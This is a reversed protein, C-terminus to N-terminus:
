AQWSKRLLLRWQNATTRSISDRELEVLPFRALLFRGAEAETHNRLHERSGPKCALAEIREGPVRPRVLGFPGNDVVLLRGGWRLAAVIRSYATWLDALHNHARLVLVWDFSENAPQVQEIGATVLAITGKAALRRTEEDPNPDVVTYRVEGSAVQRELLERHLLRGGGVDLVDGKMRALCGLVQEEADRFLDEEIPEFLGSAPNRRLKRLQRPFDTVCPAEDLQLYVQELDDRIHRVEEATFDATDTACLIEEGGRSLTLTGPSGTRAGEMGPVYNYSNGVGGRVPRLWDSGFREITGTWTCRCGDGALCGLCPAPKTMNGYDVPHFREEGAERMAKIGHSFLDDQLAALRRDLCHPFGDVGFREPPLGLKAGLDLAAGVLATARVPHPILGPDTLASGKPEVNSFKIRVNGLPALTSIVRGLAGANAELVVCNATLLRDGGAEALLHLAALAQKASGPVRTIADHVKPPGHLSMYVYDLGLDLLKGTLPRYALMRANTVLGFPLGRGHCFEALDVLDKRITPEGGSFLVSDAGLDRAQDIRECAQATTLDPVGRLAASHCFVCRNNCTYGVKILARLHANV